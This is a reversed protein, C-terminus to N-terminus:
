DGIVQVAVERLLPGDWEAFFVHQRGGRVVQGDAIPFIAFYGSLVSQLHAGANIGLRGESDLYRNHYYGFGQPRPYLPALRDWHDLVDQMLCVQPETVVIGSTTHKTMVQVQGARVGSEAVIRDVQETIDIMEREARSQVTFEELRIIM